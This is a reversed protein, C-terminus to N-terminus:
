EADSGTFTVATSTGDDAILGTSDCCVPKYLKGSQSITVGKTFLTALDTKLVKDTKAAEDYYLVKSSDAYLMTTIIYKEEVRAYVHNRKDM